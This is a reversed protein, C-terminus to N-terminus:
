ASSAPRRFITSKVGGTLMSAERKLTFPTRRRTKPVPRSDVAAQAKWRRVQHEQTKRQRHLPLDAKGVRGGLRGASCWTKWADESFVESSLARALVTGAPVQKITPSYMAVNHATLQRITLIRLKLRLTAQHLFRTERFWSNIEAHLAENSSTGAPLLAIASVDMM